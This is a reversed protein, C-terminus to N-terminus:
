TLEYVLMFLAVSIVFWAFARQLSAPSLRSALRAGGLSGAVAISSVAVAVPVDITAHALTGALGATANLAIVLLSTGVAERMALGGAITLAPVILFGGGAGLVGTLLGVGLGIMAMRSLRAPRPAVTAADRRLRLLMVTGAVLMVLGFAVILASGPLLAGLRGGVFASSMSAAGFALGPRWQVRGCRAHPIMAAMSTTAVVVLSTAIADHAGLGFGYHLIPVTLTSGGGGLLGLSVGIALALILGPLPV